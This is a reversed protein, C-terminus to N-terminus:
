GGFLNRNTYTNGINFGNRGSNFTYEGELRNSMRKLPILEYNANVHSSDSKKYNVKISKFTNLEYLRDYTLNEFDSNYLDEEKLFIYRDLPKAKFKRTYDIFSMARELTDRRPNSSASGDSRKIEIFSSDVYFVPHEIKNEPNDVILKLDVLNGDLN